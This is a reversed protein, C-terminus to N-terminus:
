YSTGNVTLKGKDFEINYIKKDAEEVPPILMVFMTLKPNLAAIAFLESSISFNTKSHLADVFKFANNSVNSLTYNKDISLSSNLDFGGIKKGKHEITQLSFGPITVKIGHSLIKQSLTNIASQDNSDVYQLAEFSKMDLNEVRLQFLINQLIYHETGNFVKVTSTESNMASNVLKGKLTSSAKVRLKDISVEFEKEAGVKIQEFNFLSKSDYVSSGTQEHKSTLNSLKLTMEQNVDLSLLNLSQDISKVKENEIEGHFTLGETKFTANEEGRFTEDIDKIYGKFATLLKNIDMHMLLKKENMLRDLHAIMTKDEENTSRLVSEPLKVPYIDFSLASYSDKLYEADIGIEMGKLHQMDEKSVLSGKSIFYKTIKEPEDFSITFHERSKGTEENKVGFGSQQLVVLEHHVEKQLARTVQDAGATFYYAIVVAILGFIGILSKKM